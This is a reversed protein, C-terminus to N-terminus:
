TRNPNPLMGVKRVKSKHVLKQHHNAKTLYFASPVTPVIGETPMCTYFSWNYSRIQNGSERLWAESKGHNMAIYGLEISAKCKSRGILEGSTICPERWRCVDM